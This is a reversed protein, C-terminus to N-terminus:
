KPTDKGCGRPSLALPAALAPGPLAARCARGLGKSRRAEQVPHSEPQAHPPQLRVPVCRGLREKWFAPCECPPGVKAM